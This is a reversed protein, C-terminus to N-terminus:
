KIIKFTENGIRIIYSGSPLSITAQQTGSLDKKVMKGDISYIYIGEAQPNSINLGDATLAVSAKETNKSLNGIGTSMSVIVSNSVEGKIEDSFYGQVTYYAKDKGKLPMTVDYSTAPYSVYYTTFPLKIAEDENMTCTIKLNDLFIFEGTAADTISIYIQGDDTGGDLEIDFNDGSTAVGITREDTKNNEQLLAISLVADDYMSVAYGSIKIKGNGVGLNMKPSTISGPIGYESYANTLGIMGNVGIIIDGYWGGRKFYKDCYGLEAVLVPEDLTTNDLLSFDDDFITFIEENCGAVHEQTVSLIYQSANAAKEWNATFGDETVNTAPLAVPTEVTEPELMGWWSGPYSEGENNKAIVHIYYYTNGSPIFNLSTKTDKVTTESVIKDASYDETYVYYSTAGEVADWEVDVQDIDSLSVSTIKPSELPYTVTEVSLDDIYVNGSNGYLLISTKEAGGSFLWELETWTENFPKAEANIISTTAENFSFIQLMQEMNNPNDTRARLKIRYLGQKGRLDIPPTRIYGPGNELDAGLFAKGGAQYTYLGSWTGPYTMLSAMESVSESVDKTDPNGESGAVWKSFDEALVTRYELNDATPEAALTKKSLAEIFQSETYNKGEKSNLFNGVAEPLTVSGKLSIEQGIAKYTFVNFSLFTCLIFLYTRRM